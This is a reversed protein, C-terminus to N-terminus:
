KIFIDNKRGDGCGFNRNLIYYLFVLAIAKSEMWRRPPLMHKSYICANLAVAMTVVNDDDTEDGDAPM